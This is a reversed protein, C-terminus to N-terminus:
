DAESDNEPQQEKMFTCVGVLILCVFEVNMASNVFSNLSDTSYKAKKQAKCRMQAKLANWVFPECLRILSALIGALSIVIVRINEYDVRNLNPFEEIDNLLYFGSITDSAIVLLFIYQMINRSVVKSRLKKNTGTQRLRILALIFYITGILFPIMTFASYFNLIWM